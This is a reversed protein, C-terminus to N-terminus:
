SAQMEISHRCYFGVNRNCHRPYLGVEAKTKLNAEQGQTQSATPSPLKPNRGDIRSVHSQGPRAQPSAPMQFIFCCIISSRERKPERKKGTM